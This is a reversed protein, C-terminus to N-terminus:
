GSHSLTLAAGFYIGRDATRAFTHKASFASLCILLSM